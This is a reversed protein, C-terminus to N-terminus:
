PALDEIPVYGGGYGMPLLLSLYAGIISPVRSQPASPAGILVIEKGAAFQQVDPTANSFPQGDATLWCLLDPGMGLPTSRDSRWAILNENQNYVTCTTKGDDSTLATRGVDFGGGPAEATASIKGRFLEKGRLYACVAKVADKRATRAKRLAQGLGLAYSLTGPIAAGKMARGDMAWFAVGAFDPFTGSSMVARMVQDAQAAGPASFTITTDEDALVVPSTPLGAAAYTAEQLTTMARRAGAADVLPLGCQAAVLMPIFSNGAGLEGPLVCDFPAGRRSALARFATTAVQYPFAGTAAATPSGAAASVATADDDGVDAVARLPPIGLKVVDKALEQGLVLPGGGGCGLICAGVLIDDLDRADLTRDAM